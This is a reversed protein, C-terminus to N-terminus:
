GDTPEFPASGVLSGDENRAERLRMYPRGDRSLWGTIKITQGIKLSNRRWGRRMLITPSNTEVRWNEVSGDAKSVDLAIMAHPNTFRFATVKGEITAQKNPDFFVAFSHHAQAATAGLLLAVLAATITRITM